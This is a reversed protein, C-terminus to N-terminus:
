RRAAKKSHVPAVTAPSAEAYPFAIEREAQERKAFLATLMVENNKTEIPEVMEFRIRFQSKPDPESKVETIFMMPPLHYVGDQQRVYGSWEKSSFYPLSLYALEATEIKKSFDAELLLALRQRGVQCAMGKGTEASGFQHFTCTACADSYKKAAQPHPAMTAADEGFAYCDPLQPNEADYKGARHANEIISHLVIARFKNGPFAAGQYALQGARTGIFNGGGGLSNAAKTARAAIAAIKEEWKVMATEVAKKAM